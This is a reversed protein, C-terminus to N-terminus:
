REAAPPASPITVVVDRTVYTTKYPDSDRLPRWSALTLTVSRDRSLYEGLRRDLDALSSLSSVARDNIRDIFEGVGVGAAEAPGGAVVQEVMVQFTLDAGIRGEGRLPSPITVRDLRFGKEPDLSRWVDVDLRASAAAERLARLFTQLDGYQRLTRGNFGAILNCVDFGARHAPGGAALDIIFAGPVTRLGLIEDLRSVPEAEEGPGHPSSELACIGLIVVLSLAPLYRKM